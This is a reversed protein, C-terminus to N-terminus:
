REDLGGFFVETDPPPLPDAALDRVVRAPVGVALSSAPVSKTVVAGAGIVSGRGITVGDLIVAGAGLWCHDEIRIGRATIGQDLVPRSSDSFVHDVAMVMVRPGFLVGEGIEIGGQGRLICGDGLYTRRGIRIGAHPLGRFNHVNLSCGTMVSVGDGLVLGGPAGHLVVHTDIYVGRGFTIDESRHIRVHDEIAPIGDARLVLKYFLGRLAIGVIGPIWALLAQLFEGLAYHLPHATKTGLYLRLARVTSQRGM